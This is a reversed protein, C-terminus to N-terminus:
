GKSTASAVTNAFKCILNGTIHATGVNRLCSNKASIIEDLIKCLVTVSFTQSIKESTIRDARSLPSAAAGSASIVADRIIIILEDLTGSLNTRDLKELATLARFIKLEDRSILANAVSTAYEINEKNTEEVLFSCIGGSIRILERAQEETIEPKEKNIVKMMDEDSLPSLMIHSTRSVITPLLDSYTNCLLIFFTFHPPEELIKLFADQADHTM